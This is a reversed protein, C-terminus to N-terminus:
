HRGSRAAIKGGGFDHSAQHGRIIKDGWKGNDGGNKGGPGPRDRDTRGKRV